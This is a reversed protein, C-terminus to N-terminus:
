EDNIVLYASVNDLRVTMLLAQKFAEAFKSPESYKPVNLDLMVADNLITAVQLM